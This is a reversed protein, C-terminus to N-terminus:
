WKHWGDDKRSGSIYIYINKHMKWVCRTAGHNLPQARIVPPLHVPLDATQTETSIKKDRCSKDVQLTATDRCRFHGMYLKMIKIQSFLIFIYFLHTKCIKSYYWARRSCNNPQIWLSLINGSSGPWSMCSFSNWFCFCFM